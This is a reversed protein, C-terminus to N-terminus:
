RSRFRAFALTTFLILCLVVVFRFEVVLSLSRRANVTPVNNLEAHARKKVAGIATSLDVDLLTERDQVVFTIRITKEQQSSTLQQLNQQQQASLQQQQAPPPTATSPKSPVNAATMTAPKQSAAPLQQYRTTSQKFLKQSDDVRAAGAAGGNAAGGAATAPAAAAAGLPGVEALLEKELAALADLEDAKSGRVRQQARQKAARAKEEELKRNIARIRRQNAENILDSQLAEGMAGGGGGGSSGGAGGGTAGSTAMTATAAAAVRSPAGYQTTSAAPTAAGGPGSASRSSAGSSSGSNSAASEATRAQLDEFELQQVFVSQNRTRLGVHSSSSPALSSRTPANNTSNSGFGTGVGGFPPPTNATSAGFGIAGGAAASKSDGARRASSGDFASSSGRTSEEALRDVQAQQDSARALRIQNEKMSRRQEHWADVREVHPMRVDSRVSDGSASWYLDAM